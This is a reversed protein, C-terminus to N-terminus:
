FYCVSGMEWKGQVGSKEGVRGESTVLQLKM